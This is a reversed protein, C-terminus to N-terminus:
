ANYHRVTDAALKCRTYKERASEITSRAYFDAADELASLVIDRAEGQPFRSWADAFLTQVKPTHISVIEFVDSYSLIPQQTTTANM